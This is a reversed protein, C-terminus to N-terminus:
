STSLKNGAYIIKRFLLPAFHKIPHPFKIPLHNMFLIIFHNILAFFLVYEIKERIKIKDTIFVLRYAFEFYSFAVKAPPQKQHM